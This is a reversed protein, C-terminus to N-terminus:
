KIEMTKGKHTFSMAKRLLNVNERTRKERMEKGRAGAERAAIKMQAKTKM